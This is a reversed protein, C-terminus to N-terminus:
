VLGGLVSLKFAGVTLGYGVALSLFYDADILGYGVALPKKVIM